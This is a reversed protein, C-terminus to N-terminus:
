EDKSIVDFILDSLGGRPARDRFAGILRNQEAAVDPVTAYHSDLYTPLRGLM